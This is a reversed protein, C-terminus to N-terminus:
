SFSLWTGYSIQEMQKQDRQTSFDACKQEGGNRKKNKEDQAHRRQVEGIKDYAEVRLHRGKNHDKVALYDSIRLAAAGVTM